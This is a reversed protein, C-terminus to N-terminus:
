FPMWKSNFFRALLGPASANAVAGKGGYSISANAV